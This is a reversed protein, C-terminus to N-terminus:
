ASMVANRRSPDELPTRLVNMSGEVVEGGGVDAEGSGCWVRISCLCFRQQMSVLLAPKIAEPEHSLHAIELMMHEAHRSVTISSVPSDLYPFVELDGQSDFRVFLGHPRDLKDPFVSDESTLQM